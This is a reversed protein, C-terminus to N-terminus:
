DSHNQVQPLNSEKRIQGPTKGTQNKIFRTFAAVSRYGLRDAVQKFGLKPHLILIIAKSVRCRNKHERFCSGTRKRLAAEIVHRDVGANEAVDHLTANPDGSLHAEVRAALTLLDSPM